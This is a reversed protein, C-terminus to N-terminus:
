QMEIRIVSILALMSRDLHESSSVQSNDNGATRGERKKEAPHVVCKAFGHDLSVAAHHSFPMRNVVKSCCDGINALSDM